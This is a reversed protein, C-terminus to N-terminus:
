QRPIVPFPPVDGPFILGQIPVPPATNWDLELIATLGVYSDAGRCTLTEGLDSFAHLGAGEAVGIHHCLWSGGDNRVEYAGARISIDPGDMRYVDANWMSTATGTLRPDSVEWLQPGCRYDREHVLSEVEVSERKPSRCAAALSLSGTVWAAADEAAESSVAPLRDPSAFPQDVLFAGGIAFILAGAIISKAPSFMTRSRRIITPSHGNTTPVPHPQHHLMASASPTQARGSRVFHWWRRRRQPTAPLAEIAHELYTGPERDARYTEELWERIFDAERPQSSM